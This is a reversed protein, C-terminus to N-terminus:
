FQQLLDDGTAIQTTPGALVWGFVTEVLLDLRGATCCCRRSYMLVSFFTSERFTRILLFFTM